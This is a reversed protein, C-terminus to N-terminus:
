TGSPPASPQPPPIYRGDATYITGISVIRQTPVDVRWGEIDAPAEGTAGDFNLSGSAGDFDITAEAEGRLLNVGNLFDQTGVNIKPGSSLRKLQTNIAAGTVATDTPLAAIAFALLYTGDYAQANFVGPLKGGNRAGYSQKFILYNPNNPSAPATGFVKSLVGNPVGSTVLPPEKMGDTLVFTDLHNGPDQTANKLFEVGDELYAIVVTVDPQFATLAVVAESQASTPAEPDYSRTLYTSEDSCGNPCLGTEIVKRFSNGYTDDRNIVAVKGVSQAKLWAVIAAGQLDDSPATRWILGDDAQNTLSPSTASPSILLVNAAHTVENFVRLTTGSAAPGVIAPVHADATLHTAAQVALDNGSTGDDCALVALKKGNIGGLENIEDVALFVAREVAPGTDALSGTRPELSGLLVVKGARVDAESVSTPYLTPCLDNVLPVETTADAGADAETATGPVCFHETCVEDSKCDANGKCENDFDLALSCATAGALVVLGFLAHRVPHLRM